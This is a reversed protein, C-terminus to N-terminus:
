QHAPLHPVSKLRLENLLELILSKGKKYSDQGGMCVTSREKPCIFAAGHCMWVKGSMSLFQRDRM